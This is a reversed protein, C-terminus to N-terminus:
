ESEGRKEKRCMECLEKIPPISEFKEVNEKVSAIKEDMYKIFDEFSKVSEEQITDRALAKVLREYMKCLSQYYGIYKVVDEIEKGDEVPKRKQPPYKKLLIYNNDDASLYYEGYLQIM